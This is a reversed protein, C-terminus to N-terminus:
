ATVTLPKAEALESTFTLFSKAGKAKKVPKRAGMRWTKAGKQLRKLRFTGSFSLKMEEAVWVGLVVYWLHFDKWVKSNVVGKRKGSRQKAATSAFNPSSNLCPDSDAPEAKLKVSSIESGNSPDSSTQAAASEEAAFISFRAAREVLAANSPFTPSCNFSSFAVQKRDAPPDRWSRASGIAPRNVTGPEHLLEIAQNTPLELLATFSSGNEPPSDFSQQQLDTEAMLSRIEERFQLTEAMEPAFDGCNGSGSESSRPLEM